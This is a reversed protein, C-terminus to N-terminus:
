LALVHMKFPCDGQNGLIHLLGSSTAGSGTLELYNNIQFLSTYPEVLWKFRGLVVRVHSTNLKSGNAKNLM